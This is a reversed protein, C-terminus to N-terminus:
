ELPLKSDDLRPVLCTPRHFKVQVLVSSVTKAEAIGVTRAVTPKIGKDM